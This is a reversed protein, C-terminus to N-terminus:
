DGLLQGLDHYTIPLDPFYAKLKIDAEWGLRRVWQNCEKSLIKLQRQLEKSNAEGCRLRHQISRRESLIKQEQEQWAYSLAKYNSYLSRLEEKHLEFIHRRLLQVAKLIQKKDYELRNALIEEAQKLDADHRQNSEIKPYIHWLKRHGRAKSRKLREIVEPLSYSQYLPKIDKYRGLLNIFHHWVKSFDPLSQKRVKGKLNVLTCTNRGSLPSGAIHTVFNPIGEMDRPCAAQCTEWLELYVGLVPEPFAGFYALGSRIPIPTLFMRSDSLIYNRHKWLFPVYASFLETLETAAEETLSKIPPTQPYAKLLTNDLLRVQGEPHQTLYAAGLRQSSQEQSSSKSM